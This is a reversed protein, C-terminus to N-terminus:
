FVSHKDLLLDVILHLYVTLEDTFINKRVSDPVKYM